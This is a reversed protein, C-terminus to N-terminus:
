HEGKAPRAPSSILHPVHGVVAHSAAVHQDYVWQLILSVIVIIFFTFAWAFSRSNRESGFAVATLEPHIGTTPLLVALRQANVLSAQDQPVDPLERMIQLLREAAIGRPVFALSVAESWPDLNARALVSLVSLTEGNGDEGVTAFLFKEFAPNPVSKLARAMNVESTSQNSAQRPSSGGTRRRPAASLCRCHFRLQPSGRPASTRGESAIINAYPAPAEVLSRFGEHSALVAAQQMICARIPM